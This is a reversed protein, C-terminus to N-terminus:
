DIIQFNNLLVIIALFKSKKKIVLFLISFLINITKNQAKFYNSFLFCIAYLTLSQLFYFRM